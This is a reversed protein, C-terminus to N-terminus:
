KKREDLVVLVGGVLHLSGTVYVDKPGPVESSIFDVADEITPMINVKSITNFKRWEEALEKQITQDEVAKSDANLSLHELM